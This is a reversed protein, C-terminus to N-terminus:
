PSVGDTIIPLLVEVMTGKGPESSVRVTGNHAQVIGLVTALGLGRGTFKTSFFPDFVKQATKRDMGCGTDIVALCAYKGEDLFQSLRLSALEKQSCNKVSTQITITGQRDELSEVSNTVLAILVQTLQDPDVRVNPLNTVLALDLAVAPPLLTEMPYMTKEILDTINLDQPEFFGKGSCALLQIGLESAKAAAIEANKLTTFIPSDPPLDDLAFSLYGLVAHMSNNFRHAIGGAMLRLSEYKQARRIRDHLQQNELDIRHKSLAVEVMARLEQSAFPKIMYGYAGVERARSLTSSDAFATLFLVPIGFRQNIERAADIGDMEGRLQIDMLVLDPAEEDISALAPQAEAHVSTVRYGMDTLNNQLDLGVLSEDEVIMIGPQNM